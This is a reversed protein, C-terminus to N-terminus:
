SNAESQKSKGLSESLEKTNVMIREQLEGRKYEKSLCKEAMKKVKKKQSGKTLGDGLHLFSRYSNWGKFKQEEKQM